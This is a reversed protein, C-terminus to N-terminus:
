GKPGEKPPTSMDGKTVEHGQSKSMEESLNSTEEKDEKIEAESLKVESHEGINKSEKDTGQVEVRTAHETLEQQIITVDRGGGGTHTWLTCFITRVVLPTIAQRLLSCICHKCRADLLMVDM